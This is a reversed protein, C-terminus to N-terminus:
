TKLTGVRLAKLQMQAKRSHPKGKGDKDKWAQSADKGCWSKIDFDYKKEHEALAATVDYVLGDIALWCSAPTSHSALDQSSVIAEAQIASPFALFGILMLRQGLDRPKKM